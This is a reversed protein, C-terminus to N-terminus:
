PGEWEGRLDRMAADSGASDRLTRVLERCRRVLKRGAGPRGFYVSWLMIRMRLLRLQRKQSAEGAGPDLLIHRVRNEVFNRDLYPTRAYEVEGQVADGPAHEQRRHHRISASPCIGAQFDHRRIRMLFEDDEGYMFFAPHFGGATELCSRSILWAAANVFRVPCVTDAGPKLILTDLLGECASPQLSYRCFKADLATGDSNLHVPSLVGYEPGGQQLKVLRGITDPSVTADQNLLFIHAAGRELALRMGRNNARGFGINRENELLTIAGSPAHTEAEAFRRVVAVTDDTSANDVVVPDVPHDSALLSELCAEIWGSANHTVVVATVSAETM